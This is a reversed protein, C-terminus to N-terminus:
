PGFSKQINLCKSADKKERVGRNSGIEPPSLPDVAGQPHGDTRHVIGQTQPLWYVMSLVSSPSVTWNLSDEPPM